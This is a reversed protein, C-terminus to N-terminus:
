VGRTQSIPYSSTPLHGLQHVGFSIESEKHGLISCGESRGLDELVDGGVVGVLRDRDLRKDM